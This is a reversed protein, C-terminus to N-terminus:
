LKLAERVVKNFEKLDNERSSWSIINDQQINLMHSLGDLGDQKLQILYEHSNIALKKNLFKNYEISNIM